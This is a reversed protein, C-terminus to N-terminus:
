IRYHKYMRLHFDITIDNPSHFKWKKLQKAVILDNEFIKMKALAITRLWRIIKLTSFKEFLIQNEFLKKIFTKCCKPNYNPMWKNKLLFLLENEIIQYM